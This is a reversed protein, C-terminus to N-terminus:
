PRLSGEEDYAKTVREPPPVSGNAHQVRDLFVTIHVREYPLAFAMAGPTFSAPAQSALTIAIAGAPLEGGDHWRIRV